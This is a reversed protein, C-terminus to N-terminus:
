IFSIIKQFCYLLDVKFISKRNQTKISTQYSSDAAMTSLYHAFRFISLIATFFIFNRHAFQFQQQLQQSCISIAKLLNFNSHVFRFQQQLQRSCISIATLLNFNGHCKQAVTSRQVCWPCNRIGSEDPYILTRYCMIFLSFPHPCFMFWPDMSGWRPGPGHVVKISRTWPGGTMSRTWQCNKKFYHSTFLFLFLAILLNFVVVIVFLVRDILIIWHM